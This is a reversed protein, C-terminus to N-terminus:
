DSRHMVALAELSALYTKVCPEQESRWMKRRAWVIAGVLMQCGLLTTKNFLEPVSPAVPQSHELEEILEDLPDRWLAM